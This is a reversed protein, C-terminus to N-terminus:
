QTLALRRHAKRVAGRVQEKGGPALDELVYELFESAGRQASIVMTLGDYLERVLVLKAPDSTHSHMKALEVPAYYFQQPSYKAPESKRGIVLAATTPVVTM